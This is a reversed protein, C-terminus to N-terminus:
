NVVEIMILKPQCYDTVSKLNLKFLKVFQVEPKFNTQRPITSESDSPASTLRQSPESDGAAPSDRLTEAASAQRVGTRGVTVTQSESDTRSLKLSPGPIPLRGPM